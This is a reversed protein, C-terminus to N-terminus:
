DWHDFCKRCGVRSEFSFEDNKLSRITTSLRRLRDSELISQLFLTLFNDYRMPLICFVESIEKISLVFSAALISDIWSCIQDQL